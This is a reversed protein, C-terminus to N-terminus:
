AGRRERCSARGIEQAARLSVDERLRGFMRIAPGTRPQSAALRLPTWIQHNIPFLFREPMVGVVTMPVRGLQVTRGIVSPDAHFRSRWLDHGIVVVNEAGPAADAEELPRGMLPPVRTLPFAVPSIEAVEVPESRGDATILNREIPRYAGLQEITHMQERWVLFDPASRREVGGSELDRNEIRVIREGEELPLRTDRMEWSYEFFAAGLAMAAALTIGGIISLGPYKLLMRGGLKWDLWSARFDTLRTGTREDRAHERFREVGGFDRMAKRRAEGPSLGREINYQVEQDIHFQMEEAAEDHEARAARYERWRNMLSM